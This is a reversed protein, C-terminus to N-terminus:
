LIFIAVLLGLSTWIFSYYIKNKNSITDGKVKHIMSLVTVNILYLTYYIFVYIMWRNSQIVVSLPEVLFLIFVGILSIGIIIPMIIYMKGWLRHKLFTHSKKVQFYMALSFLGIIVVLFISTMLVPTQLANTSSFPVGIDKSFMDAIFAIVILLAIIIGQFLTWRSLFM